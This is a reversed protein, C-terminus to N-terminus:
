RNDGIELVDARRDIRALHQRILEVLAAPNELMPLHGVGPMVIHPTRLAAAMAAGMEPPCTLDFEGTVVTVPAHVTAAHSRIDAGTAARWVLRVDNPGNPNSHTLTTAIIEPTAHPGLAYKPLIIKFMEDVGYQELTAIVDTNDRDPSYLQSGVAMVSAVRDPAVSALYTALAGGLSGGIAHFSRVGVHDVADLCDQAWLTIDYKDVPPSDGFGRLDPVIIFRDPFADVIDAWVAGRLNAPHILLLPADPAAPSGFYSVAIPGDAREITTRKM